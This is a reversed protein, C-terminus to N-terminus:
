KKIEKYIKELEKMLETDLKELPIQKALHYAVQNDEYEKEGDGLDVKWIKIYTGQKYGNKQRFENLINKVFYARYVEDFDMGTYKFLKALYFFQAEIEKNVSFHLLKLLYRKFSFDKEIDLSDNLFGRNYFEDFAETTVNKHYYALDSLLFHLIDILEVKVNEIDKEQKKWWKYGFSELLKGAEVLVASQWDISSLKEKWAPYTLNNLEIQKNLMKQFLSFEKKSTINNTGFCDVKYSHFEDIIIPKEM